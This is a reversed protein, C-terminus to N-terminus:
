LYQWSTITVPGRLTAQKLWDAFDYWDDFVTSGTYTTGDKDVKSYWVGIKRGM